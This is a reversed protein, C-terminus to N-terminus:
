SATAAHKLFQLQKGIGMNKLPVRVHQMRPALYKRYQEGALFIFEDKGPDSVRWLQEAVMDAWLKVEGANKTNLTEEYPPITETLPLLGHKASLVYVADPNLSRAYALSSKFLPSTYLEEAPAPEALKKSACSILAIKKAM